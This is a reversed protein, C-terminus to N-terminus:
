YQKMEWSKEAVIEQAYVTLDERLIHSHLLSCFCVNGWINTNSKDIQLSFALSTM